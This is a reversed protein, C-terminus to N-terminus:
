INSSSLEQQAPTLQLISEHWCIYLTNLQVCEVIRMKCDDYQPYRFIALLYFASNNRM